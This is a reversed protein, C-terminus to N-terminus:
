KPTLVVDGPSATAPALLAPAPVATRYRSAEDTAASRKIGHYVAAACCAFLCPVGLGLGVGLGVGLRYIDNRLDPPPPPPPPNAVASPLVVSVLLSVPSLATAGVFAFVDPTLASMSATVSAPTIASTTLYGGVSISGPVAIIYSVLLTAAPAAQRLARRGSGNDVSLTLTIASAPLGVAAAIASVLGASNAQAPVSLGTASLRFSGIVVSQTTPVAAATNAALTVTNNNALVWPFSSGLCLQRPM